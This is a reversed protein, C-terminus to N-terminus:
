LNGEDQFTFGQFSTQADAPIASSEEFSLVAAQQTVEADFNSTDTEGKIVPVWSPKTKKNQVDNWNIDSFWPHAKISEVDADGTGLRSAPDRDLLAVVFSKAAESVRSSSFVVPASVINRYMVNINEDYFPPIGNLMEYVLIGFSWWDVDKGYPKQQLVEPAIYEPTGCFTKTTDDAGLGSKALGFDIIKLHGEADVLINEPRLDRYITKNAHLTGIGLAIEAAYLKVRAEDFTGEDKLRAFLEGGPVYEMVMFIKDVTQFTCSTNVLFPSHNTKLLNREEITAAIKDAEALQTKSLSKMAYSRPNSNQM